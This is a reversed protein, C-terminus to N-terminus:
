KQVKLWARFAEPQSNFLGRHNEEAQKWTSMLRNGLNEPLTDSKLPRAYGQEVMFINLSLKNLTFIEATIRGYRDRQKLNGKLTLKEGPRIQRKLFDTAENGLSMLSEQSKGSRTADVKLKPNLSDEPADMGLLQIRESQGNLNVVLTDADEIKELEVFIGDALLLSSLLLSTIFTLAKM